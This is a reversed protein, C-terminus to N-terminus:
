LGAQTIAVLAAFLGTVAHRRVFARIPNAINRRFVGLTRLAVKEGLSTKRFPHACTRPYGMYGLFDETISEFIECERSTLVKSWANIRSADPKQGVLQHQSATYKPASFGSGAVMAPEYDLELFEAVERMVREPESVVDEYRVRRILSPGLMQEAALGFGTSEVWFHAAEVISNPGWDLDMVSAAVARGDRIIHIFKSNPFAKLLLQAHRINHPTHDVWISSQPKDIREAYREVLHLLARIPLNSNRGIAEIEERTTPLDWLKFRWSSRLLEYIPGSEAYAPDRLLPAKFQSEPVCVCQSHAGLMAGLLTTGSRGCGGIFITRKILGGGAGLSGQPTGM